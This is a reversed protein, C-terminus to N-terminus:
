LRCSGSMQHRSLGHEKGSGHGRHDWRDDGPKPWHRSFNHFRDIFGYCLIRVFADSSLMKSLHRVHNSGREKGGVKGMESTVYGHDLAALRIPM